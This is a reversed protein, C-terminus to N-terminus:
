MWAQIEEKDSLDQIIQAAIAVRIM